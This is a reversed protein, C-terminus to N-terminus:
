RSVAKSVEIGPDIPHWIPILLVINPRNPQIILIVVINIDPARPIESDHPEHRPFHLMYALEPRNQLVEVLLPMRPHLQESRRLLLQRSGSFEHTVSTACLMGPSRQNRLSILSMM